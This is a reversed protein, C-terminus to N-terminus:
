RTRGARRVQRAEEVAIDLAERESFDTNKAVNAELDARVAAAEAAYQTWASQRTIGLVRGVAEWTAGADRAALVTERKLDDCEAETM